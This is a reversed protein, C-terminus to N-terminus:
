HLPLERSDESDKIAEIIEPQSSSNKTIPEKLKKKKKKKKTAPASSEREKILKAVDSQQKESDFTSANREINMTSLGEAVELANSCRTAARSDARISRGRPTTSRTRTRNWSPGSHVDVTRAKPTTSRSRNYSRFETSSRRGRRVPQTVSKPLLIEECNADFRSIWLDMNMMLKETRELAKDRGFLAEVFAIGSSLGLQIRETGKIDSSKQKGRKKDELDNDAANFQTSRDGEEPEVMLPIPKAKGHGSESDAVQQDGAQVDTSSKVKSSEECAEGKESSTHNESSQPQGDNSSRGKSNDRKYAKWMNDECVKLLKKLRDWINYGSDLFDEIMDRKETTYIWNFRNEALKIKRAVKILLLWLTGAAEVSPSRPYCHYSTWEYIWKGLSNADFVSGLLIIPSETPDWYKLSYAVPIRASKRDAETAPRPQPSRLVAHAREAPNWPTRRAILYRSSAIQMDMTEYPSSRQPDDCSSTEYNRDSHYITYDMRGPGQKNGHYSKLASDNYFSHNYYEIMDVEDAKIPKDERSLFRSAYSVKGTSRRISRQSGYETYYPLRPPRSDETLDTSHYTGPRPYKSTSPAYYYPLPTRSRRHNDSTSTAYYYPSPTLSRRPYAYAPSAHCYPPPSSSRGPYVDTSSVPYYPSPIPSRHIAPIPRDDSTAPSSLKKAKKVEKLRKAEKVKKTEKAEKAKSGESILPPTTSVIQQEGRDLYSELGGNCKDHWGSLSFNM